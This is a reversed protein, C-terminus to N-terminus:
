DDGEGELEPGAPYGGEDELERMEEEIGQDALRRRLAEFGANEPPLRDRYRTLADELRAVRRTLHGITEVSARAEGAAVKQFAAEGGLEGLWEVLRSSLSDAADVLEDQLLSEQVLEMADEIDEEQWDSRFRDWAEPPLNLGDVGEELSAAVEGCLEAFRGM